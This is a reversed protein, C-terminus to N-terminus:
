KQNEIQHEEKRSKHPRFQSYNAECAQKISLDCDDGIVDHVYKNRVPVQTTMEHITRASNVHFRKQVIKISSRQTHKYILTNQADRGIHQLM